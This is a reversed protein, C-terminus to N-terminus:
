VIYAIGAQRPNPTASVPISNDGTEGGAGVGRVVYFYSTGNQVASDQFTVGSTEAIKAFPGDKSPGRLVEYKVAPLPNTVALWNLTVVRNEFPRHVTVLPQGPLAPPTTHYEFTGAAYRAVPGGDPTGPYQGQPGYRSSGVFVISGSGNNLTWTVNASDGQSNNIRELGAYGDTSITGQFGRPLHLPKILPKFRSGGNLEGASEPTFIISVLQTP